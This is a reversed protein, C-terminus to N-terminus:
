TSFAVERRRLIVAIVVPAGMLATVANLPLVLNSGPVEALIAAVLAVLAGVLMTGPVLVRHDSTGLLSRCLHPVAIGIFGVPGAFATVVGALVATALVIGVRVRLLNVGLTRAYGEGLLLANLSKTLLGALLLGVLVAPALIRLEDWTVDSFSGFTWNIYAQIQEPIAFFLLLSVAANTLFGVMVGLVLLTMSSGVKRAVALVLLMVGAAGIMAAVAISLDGMLGIGALLTGGVTGVSLIVLAVGLSAGSSIGLVYPDALPNRFLTQMMLGSVGLAAGSLAATLGRPLRFKLVISTWSAKSAEGGLLVTVIQDLPITVSGVALSLLFAAAVTALLLILAIRRVGVRPWAELVASEHPKALAQSISQLTPLNM